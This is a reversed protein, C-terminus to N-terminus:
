MQACPGCSAPSRAVLDLNEVIDQATPREKPIVHWAATMIPRLRSHCDAALPRPEKGDRYQLLIVEPDLGLQHFPAKGSSMFYIILGYAYIDVKEDYAQHRLVEPAMYRWSGVGGTMSYGQADRRAMLRSIGFDSVKIELHKTLLLNLPKLDRHVVDRCHLFSLARGVASSWDLVQRLGPRWVVVDHSKRQAMFYRELDGGPLYETVCMIPLHQDICAGLFMVLDPHRLSSLLDIEHLLEDSIEKGEANSRLGEPCTQPSQVSQLQNFQVEDHLGACKVVVDVGQWSARYLTSKLTRSLEQHLKFDKRSLKWHSDMARVWLRRQRTSSDDESCSTTDSVARGIPGDGGDCTSASVQPVFPSSIKWAPELSTMPSPQLHFAERSEFGRRVNLVLCRDDHKDRTYSEVTACQCAM